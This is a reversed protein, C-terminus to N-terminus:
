EQWTIGKKNFFDYDEKYYEKIEDVEETSLQDLYDIKISPNYISVETINIELLDSLKRLENDYDDFNLLNIHECDLWHVQKRYVNDRLYTMKRFVDILRVEDNLKKMEPSLSEYENEELCSMRFTDGYFSHFFNHTRWRKIYRLMSVAREVPNRYFAYMTYALPSGFSGDKKSIMEFRKLHEHNHGCVDIKGYFLNYLTFTGTKPVM